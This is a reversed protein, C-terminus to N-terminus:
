VENRELVEVAKYIIDIQLQKKAAADCAAAAAYAAYAAADAYAAYAAAAAYAAYAAADAYAAYAYAAADADYAAAARNTDTPEKLWNKAALIAKRPRDDDPYRDEFIPLVKEACFIAIETQQERNALRSFLWRAYDPRYENVRLLTDLLDDSGNKLYWALGDKCPRLDRVTKKTLKM